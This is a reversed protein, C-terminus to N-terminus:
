LELTCQTNKILGESNDLVITILFLASEADALPPIYEVMGDVKRGDDLTVRVKGDAAIRALDQKKLSFTAKLKSLDYLRVVSPSNGAVFEGVQKYVETIVGDAPAVITREKLQQRLREVELKAIEITEEADLLKGKIQEVELRARSIELKSAHSDNRLSLFTDLKTQAFNLEAHIQDIKGHAAAEAEAKRIVVRLHGLDLQGIEQGAVVKDGPKVLMSEIIGVETTAIDIDRYPLLVGDLAPRDWSPGAKKAQAFAANPLLVFCMGAILVAFKTFQKSETWSM